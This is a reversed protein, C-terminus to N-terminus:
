PADEAARLGDLHGRRTGTLRALPDDHVAGPADVGLVSREDVADRDGGQGAGDDVEGVGEGLVAEGVGDVLGLDPPEEIELRDLTHEFSQGAPLPAVLECTDERGVPVDLGKRAAASLAEHDPHALVV